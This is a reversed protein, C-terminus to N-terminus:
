IFSMLGSSQLNGEEWNESPPDWLTINAGTVTQGQSGSGTLPHTM